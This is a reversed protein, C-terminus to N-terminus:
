RLHLLPLRRPVAQDAPRLGEPQLDRAPGACPRSRGPGRGDVRRAVRAAARGSSVEAGLPYAIVVSVLLHFDIFAILLGSAVSAAAATPPTPRQSAPWQSM